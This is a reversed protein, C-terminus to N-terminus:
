LSGDTASGPCGCGAGWGKLPEPAGLRRGRPPRSREDAAVNVRGGGGQEERAGNLARGRPGGGGGRAWSGGGGGGGRWCGGGGGSPARGITHRKPSCSPSSGASARSTTGPCRFAGRRRTTRSTSSSSIAARERGAGPSSTTTLRTTRGAPATSCGGNAT